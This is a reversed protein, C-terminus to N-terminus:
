YKLLMSLNYHNHRPKQKPEEACGTVALSITIFAAIFIHKNM